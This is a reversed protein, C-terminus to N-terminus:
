TIGLIKEAMNRESESLDDLLPLVREEIILATTKKHMDGDIELEVEDILGNTLIPLKDVFINSESTVYQQITKLFTLFLIKKFIIESSTSKENFEEHELLSLWKLDEASLYNTIIWNKIDGSILIQKWNNRIFESILKKLEPRLKNQIREVYKLEDRIISEIGVNDYEIKGSCHSCHNRVEVHRICKAFDNMSFCNIENLLLSISKSEGIASQHFINTIAIILKKIEPLSNDDKYKLSYIPIDKFIDANKTNRLLWTSKYVFVMYMMHFAKFSFQSTKGTLNKTYAEQLYAIFEKNEIDIFEIPLYRSIEEAYHEM